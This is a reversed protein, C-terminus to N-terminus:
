NVAKTTSRSMVTLMDQTLTKLFEDSVPNEPDFNGRTTFSLPRSHMFNGYSGGGYLNTMDGVIADKSSGVRLPPRDKKTNGSESM